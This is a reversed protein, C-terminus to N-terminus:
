LNGSGFVAASASAIGQLIEGTTPTSTAGLSDLYLAMNAVALVTGGSAPDSEASDLFAALRLQEAHEMDIEVKQLQARLSLQLQDPAKADLGKKMRKRIKRLPRVVEDHWEHVSTRLVNIGIADLSQGRLGSWVCALLINVDVGYAQQLDLCAEAVGTKRYAAVSFDWLPHEPFQTMTPREFPKTM